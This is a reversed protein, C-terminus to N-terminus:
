KGQIMAVIQPAGFVMAIGITIFFAKRIDLGGFMWAFGTIVVAIIAISTGWVGTLLEIIRQLVGGVNDITAAFAPEMTTLGALLTLLFLSAYKKM